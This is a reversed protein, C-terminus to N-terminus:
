KHFHLPVMQGFLYKASLLDCLASFVTVNKCCKRPISRYSGCSQFIILFTVMLVECFVEFFSIADFFNENKEIKEFEETFIITGFFRSSVEIPFAESFLRMFCFFIVVPLPGKRREVTAHMFVKPPITRSEFM